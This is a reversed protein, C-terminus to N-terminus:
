LRPASRAAVARLLVLRRYAVRLGDAMMQGRRNPAQLSGHSALVAPLYPRLSSHHRPPGSRSPLPAYIKSLHHNNFNSNTYLQISRLHGDCCLVARRERPNHSCTSAVLGWCDWRGAAYALACRPLCVLPDNAPKFLKFSKQVSFYGSHHPTTTKTIHDTLKQFERCGSLM